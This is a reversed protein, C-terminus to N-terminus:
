SPPQLHRHHTTEYRALSRLVIWYSLAALPLAFVISGVFTPWLFQLTKLHMWNELRFGKVHMREPFHHPHSLIWFGLDYEWRLIVPWIPILVDHLAVALVASLKSCRCLWAFGISLLTKFGALPTFGWFMGIAVGGAVAHPADRIHHIQDYRSKLFGKFDALSKVMFREFDEDEPPRSCASLEFYSTRLLFNSTPLEFYSTKYHGRPARTVYM